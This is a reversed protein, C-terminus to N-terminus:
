NQTPDQVLFYCGSIHLFPFISPHIPPHIAQVLLWLCVSPVARCISRPSASSNESRAPPRAPIPSAMCRGTGPLAAGQAESAWYNGPCVTSSLQGMGNCNGETFCWNYGANKTLWASDSYSGDACTKAICKCPTVGCDFNAPSVVGCNDMLILQPVCNLSNSARRQVRNSLPVDVCYM